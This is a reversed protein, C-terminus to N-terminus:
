EHSGIYNRVSLCARFSRWHVPRLDRVSINLLAVAIRELPIFMEMSVTVRKEYEM